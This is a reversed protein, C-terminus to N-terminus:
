AVTVGNQGLIELLRPVDTAGVPSAQDVATFMQTALANAGTIELMQGGGVGYQFGHVTGCPIHVLTGPLCVQTRGDCLFRIEGSLVYFAEDWGHSHAPPGTGEDGRQLTIGYSQAESNAALVTVKTGAVNLARPQQDPPLVFYSSAM